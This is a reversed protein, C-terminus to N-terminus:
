SLTPDLIGSTILYRGAVTLNPFRLVVVAGDQRMEFVVPQADSAHQDGGIVDAVKPSGPIPKTSM